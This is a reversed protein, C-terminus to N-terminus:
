WSGSERNPLREISARTRARRMRSTRAASNLLRFATVEARFFRERHIQEDLLNNAFRYLESDLANRSRILAIAEKTPLDLSGSRTVNKAVYFPMQWHLRRRFLIMSTDFREAIGVAVFNEALNRQALALTGRNPSGQALGAIQRTQGNVIEATDAAGSVFDILDQNRVVDHLAHQPSSVIYRYLSLVRRIPERMMTIYTNRGPLQRHIGYDVHGIVFRITTADVLQPLHTRGIGGPIRLIERRRYQRVAIADITTGAAKPIHIFIVRDPPETTIPHDRTM